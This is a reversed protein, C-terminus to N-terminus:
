HIQTIPIAARTRDAPMPEPVPSIGEPEYLVPSETTAASSEETQGVNILPFSINVEVVDCAAEHIEFHGRDGFHLRLRSKVNSLGIGGERKEQPEPPNIGVGSNRVSISIRSGDTVATIEILGENNLKSLGHVYANEIIPQLLM